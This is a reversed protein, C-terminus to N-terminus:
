AKLKYGRALLILSLSWLALATAVVIGMGLAPDADNYGTMAYRFGDMLYFVPNLRLIGQFAEPVASLPFFTGSLFLAPMLIFTEKGAISDWKPSFLAALTGFSSFIVSGLIAYSLLLIISQPAVPGAILALAIWVTAGIALSVLLGSLCYALILELCTLPIGLIDQLRDSLKDDMLSYGASEFSRQLIASLVLGPCLFEIFSLTGVSLDGRDTSLLFILTFLSAQLAPGFVTYQFFRWERVLERRIMTILGLGNLWGYTRPAQIM